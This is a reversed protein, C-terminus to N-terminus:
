HLNKCEGPEQEREREREGYNDVLVMLMTKYQKCHTSKPTYHTPKCHTSKPKCYIYKCHTSKCHTSKPTYHTPKCHTSKPKCHTPKYHTPKPTSENFSKRIDLAASISQSFGSSYLCGYNENIYIAITYYYAFLDKCNVHDMLQTLIFNLKFTFVFYTLIFTLKFSFVFHALIFNFAISM